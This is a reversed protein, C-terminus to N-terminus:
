NRGNLCGAIQSLETVVLDPVVGRIREDEDRKRLSRADGAFLATRFGVAQAPWVDKLMDNGVYLVQSPSIEADVLADSVLEYLRRSPKGEAQQYSWCCFEPEFGLGALPREFFAELMLPTYFQANSVIGLRLGRERLTQLCGSAGPMPWVPNTRIEYEVALRAVGEPGAESADSLQGDLEFENLMRGWIERIEVEPYEIGAAKADAHTKRITQEFMAVGAAGDVQHEIGVAQMAALFADPQTETGSTGVDGSGSIVLTGYVDFLVARIDDLPTLRPPEGTPLADLPTTRERYLAVLPNSM